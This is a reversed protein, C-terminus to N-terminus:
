VEAGVPISHAHAEISYGTLEGAKVSKWIEDNDIQTAMIWSGKKVTVGNIELDQPAIYSEVPHLDPTDYEHEVGNNMCARMFLHASKRIEEASIIDGQADVVEPVLVEGLVFREETEEDEWHKLIKSATVRVRDSVSEAQEGEVAKTLKVNEVFVQAGEVPEVEIPAEFPIFDRVRYLWLATKKKWWKSILDPSILHEDFRENVQELTLLEGEHFRVFGFARDKSILLNFRTLLYFQRAKLIAAQQGSAVQKGYPPSLYVGTSVSGRLAGRLAELTVASMRDPDFTIAGRSLTIDTLVSLFQPDRHPLITELNQWITLLDENELDWLDYNEVVNALPAEAVMADQKEITVEGGDIVVPEGTSGSFTITPDNGDGM